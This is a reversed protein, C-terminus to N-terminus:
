VSRVVDPRRSHKVRFHAWAAPNKYGRLEGLKRFEEYTKCSREETKRQRTIAERQEETLKVLQGDTVEIERKQIERETGCQPCERGQFIAFCTECQQTEIPKESAKRKPRGELSWQRDDEMLGHRICNGVHDLIICTNPAPKRRGARGLQQLHLSLSMTPRLLIAAEVSPLDFGESVLECSTMVMTKGRTLNVVRQAREEDSLTGDICESPIGALNFQETVHKAHEISICFAIARSGNCLKRYHDVANGTITPVDILKEADGRNFDGATKRIASTDVTAPPAYYTAKALFDNEVLWKVPPAHVMSEYFEGLGRGDLREPTATFGLFFSKPWAAFIQVYQSAASHHCNHVVIDNATYTHTGTTELNYVFGDPCAGGFTGDATPPVPNVSEVFEVDVRDKVICVLMDGSRLRNAHIWQRNAFVPHDPTCVFSPGSHTTTVRVLSHPVSRYTRVVREKRQDYNMTLGDVYDGVQITEIPRGGVLTGAPFCEDVIVMTPQQIKDLRRALTGVSAVQVKHHLAMPHGSQIRGHPVNFQALAKSIQDLIESRHAVVIVSNGKASANQTMYSFCVTKGFGTAAQAVVRRRGQRFQDRIESVFTVQDPRLQM